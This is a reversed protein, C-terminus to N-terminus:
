SNSDRESLTEPKLEPIKTRYVDSGETEIHGTGPDLGQPDPDSSIEAEAQECGASFKQEHQELAWSSLAKRNQFADRHKRKKGQNVEASDPPVLGSSVRYYVTSTDKEVIALTLSKNTFSDDPPRINEIYQELKELSLVTQAPLPLVVEFPDSPRYQGSIFVMQLSECPHIVVNYWQRVECLDMYVQFCATQQGVDEYGYDKIEILKTHNEPSSNTPISSNKSKMAAAM